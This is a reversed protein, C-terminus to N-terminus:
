GRRMAHHLRPRAFCAGCPPPSRALAWAWKASPWMWARAATVDCAIPAAVNDAGDIEIRLIGPRAALEGCQRELPHAPDLRTALEVGRRRLAREIAEENPSSPAADIIRQETFSDTQISM